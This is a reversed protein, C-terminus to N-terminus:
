RQKRADKYHKPTIGMVQKFMRTFSLANKYGIKEGVESINFDTTELYDRSKQIRYDILYKHLTRGTVQKFVSALYSENLSLEQSIDGILFDTHGYNERIIRIAEETYILKKNVKEIMSKDNVQINEENAILSFLEYLRGQLKMRSVFSVPDMGSMREIMPKVLDYHAITGVPSDSTIGIAALISNASTGDFGFWIYEWPEEADAEYYTQEGPFIMFFQGTELLYKSEKHQFIGKGNLIIHLLFYERNSPGYSHNAMCKERGKTVYYLDQYIDSKRFFDEDM